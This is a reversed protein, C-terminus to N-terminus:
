VRFNFRFFEKRKQKRSSQLRKPNRRLAEILRNGAETGFMTRIEPGSMPTTESLAKQESKAWSEAYLKMAGEQKGDAMLFMCRLKRKKEHAGATAQFQALHDKSRLSRKRSARASNSGHSGSMSILGVGSRSRSMPLKDADGVEDEESTASYINEVDIEVAVVAAKAEADELQAIRRRAQKSWARFTIRFNMVTLFPNVCNEKKVLAHKIDDNSVQLHGKQQIELTMLYIRYRTLEEFIQMKKNIKHNGYKRRMCRYLLENFYVYGNDSKIAMKLMQKKLEAPEFHDKGFGLSSDKDGDDGLVRFFKPLQKEKIRLSM